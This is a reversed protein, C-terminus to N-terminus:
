RGIERMEQDIRKLADLQKSLEEIKEDRITLQGRLKKVSPDGAGAKKRGQTADREAIVQTLERRLAQLSAADRQKRRMLQQIIMERELLDRVVQETSWVLLENNGEGVRMGDLFQNWPVTPRQDRILKIWLKSTSALRSNPSVAVVQEFQKTAAERNEFLAVLARMFHGHACASPIKCDPFMKQQRQVLAQYREIDGPDPVFLPAVRSSAPPVSSCATLLVLLLPFGRGLHLVGTTM